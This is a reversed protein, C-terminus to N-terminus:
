FEHGSTDDEPRLLPPSCKHASEGRERQEHRRKVHREMGACRASYAVPPFKVVPREGRDVAFIFLGCQTKQHLAVFRCMRRKFPADAGGIQSGYKVACALRLLRQWPEPLRPFVPEAHGVAEGPQRAGRYSQSLGRPLHASIYFRFLRQAARQCYRWRFGRRISGVPFGSTKCQFFQSIHQALSAPAGFRPGQQHFGPAYGSHRPLPHDIRLHTERFQVPVRM